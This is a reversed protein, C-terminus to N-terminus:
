ISVRYIDADGQRSLTLLKAKNLDVSDGVALTSDNSLPIFTQRHNKMMFSVSYGYQSDVVKASEVADIEEKSFSRSEKEMWKGAYMKLSNFINM